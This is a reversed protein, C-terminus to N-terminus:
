AAPLNADASIDPRERKNILSGLMNFLAAGSMSAAFIGSFAIVIPLIRWGKALEFSGFGVTVYMEGAFYFTEPNTPFINLPILAYTWLVIDMLHGLIILVIAVFYAIFAALRFGYFYHGAIRYNDILWSRIANFCIVVLLVYVGHFTLMLGVFVLIWYIQQNGIDTYIQKFLDTLSPLYNLLEM